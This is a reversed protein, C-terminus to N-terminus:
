PSAGFLEGQKRVAQLSNWAAHNFWLVEVRPAAGDAMADREVRNWGAYLLDYLASHYGSIIVMGTLTKEHDALAEHDVDTMEHAYDGGADRTSAVYPPDWYHLTEPSDHAASVDIAPRNEIVIGQLRDSLFDCCDGYNKWDHAPTTGSRNSNARFGTKALGGRSTNNGIRGLTAAASGFGMFSRIITRRAQEMPDDSPYWAELYEDRSFPTLKLRRKLEAGHDRLVKFVNVIEGDIDNYVEGYSRPKRLLVSGGGGFPEVYIRHVPFYQIIWPALLFKGGHYRLAPRKPAEPSIKM